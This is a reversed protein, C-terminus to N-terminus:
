QQKDPADGAKTLEVQYSIGDFYPNIWERITRADPV